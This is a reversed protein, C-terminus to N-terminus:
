KNQQNGMAVGFSKSVKLLKSLKLNVRLVKVKINPDTMLLTTWRHHGDIIMNNADIILTKKTLFNSNDPLGFKEYNVIVKSLYVQAQVPKLDKVKVTEIKADIKDDKKKGDNEGSDLWIERDKPKIKTPFKGISDIVDKNYPEKVDLEGNILKEQFAKVQKWSVVPMDVRNETGNNVLSKLLKFNKDFDDIQSIDMKLAKMEKTFFAKAQELSTNAVEMTGGAQGGAELLTGLTM